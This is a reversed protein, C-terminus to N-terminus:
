QSEIESDVADGDTPESTQGYKPAPLQIPHYELMPLDEKVIETLHSRIEVHVQSFESDLDSMTKRLAKVAEGLGPIRELLELAYNKFFVQTFEWAGRTSFFDGRSNKRITAVLKELAKIADLSDIEGSSIIAELQAVLEDFLEPVRSQRFYEQYIRAFDIASDSAFDRSDWTQSEIEHNHKIITRLIKLGAEPNGHGARLYWDIMKHITNFWPPQDKESIARRLDDLAALTARATIVKQKGDDQPLALLFDTYKGHFVDYRERLFRLFFEVSENKSM